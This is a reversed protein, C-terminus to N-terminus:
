QQALLHFLHKPRIRKLVAALQVYTHTNHIHTHCTHEDTCEPQAPTPPSMVMWAQWHMATWPGICLAHHRAACGACQQWQNYGSSASMVQGARTSWDRRHMLAKAAIDQAHREYLVVCPAMCEHLTLSWAPHTVAVSSGVTM